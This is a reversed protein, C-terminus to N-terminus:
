LVGSSRKKYYLLKLIVDDMFFIFLLLLIVFLIHTINQMLFPPVTSEAYIYLIIIVGAFLLVCTIVALKIGFENLIEKLILKHEIKRLLTSTFDDSMSTEPITKLAERIYSEVNKMNYNDNM